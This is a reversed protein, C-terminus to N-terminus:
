RGNVWPDRDMKLDIRFVVDIQLALDGIDFGEPAVLPQNQGADVEIRDRAEGVLRAGFEFRRLRAGYALRAAEIAHRGRREPDQGGM